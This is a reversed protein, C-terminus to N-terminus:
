RQLWLMEERYLLEDIHQMKQWLVAKDADQLQLNTLEHHLKELESTVHGFNEKSRVRLGNMMEKLTDQVAGRNGAPKSKGWSETM